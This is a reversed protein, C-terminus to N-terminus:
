IVPGLGPPSPVFCAVIVGLVAGSVVQVTGHLDQHEACHWTSDGIQSPEAAM